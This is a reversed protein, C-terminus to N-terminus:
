SSRATEKTLGFNKNSLKGVLELIKAALMLQWKKVEKEPGKLGFQHAIEKFLDKYLWNEGNLVFREGSVPSEMLKIMATAVDEVAVLGCYGSPYFKLGQKVTKFLAGSGQWGCATGIIISPNVIVADLGEAIGRWVEM